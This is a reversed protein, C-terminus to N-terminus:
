RPRKLARYDAMGPLSPLFRVIRTVGPALVEIQGDPREWALAGAEDLASARVWGFTHPPGSRLMVEPHSM